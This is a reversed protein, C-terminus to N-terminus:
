FYLPEQSGRFKESTDSTITTLVRLSTDGYGIMPWELSTRGNYPEPNNLSKLVSSCSILAM